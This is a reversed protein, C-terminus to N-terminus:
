IELTFRSILPICCFSFNGSSYSLFTGKATLSKYHNSLVLALFFIVSLDYAWALVALRLCFVTLLVYLYVAWPLYDTEEDAFCSLHALEDKLNREAGDAILLCIAFCCNWLTLDQLATILKGQESCLSEQDHWAPGAMSLFFNPQEVGRWCVPLTSISSYRQWWVNLFLLFLSFLLLNLCSTIHHYPFPM